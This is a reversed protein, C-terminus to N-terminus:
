CRLMEIGARGTLTSNTRHPNFDISSIVLPWCQAMTKGPSKGRSRHLCGHPRHHRSDDKRATRRGYVDRPRKNFIDLLIPSTFTSFAPHGISYHLVKSSPSQSASSASILVFLCFLKKKICFSSLPVSVLLIDLTSIAVFRFTFSPAHPGLWYLPRDFVLCIRM